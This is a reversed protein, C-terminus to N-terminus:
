LTAKAATGREESRTGEWGVVSPLKASGPVAGGAARWPRLPSKGGRKPRSGRGGGAKELLSPLEASAPDEGGGGRGNSGGRGQRM